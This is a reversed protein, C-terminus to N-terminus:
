GAPPGQSVRRMVPALRHLDDSTQLLREDWWTAGAEM